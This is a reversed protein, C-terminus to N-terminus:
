AAPVPIDLVFVTGTAESSVSYTGGLSRVRAEISMLGQGSPLDQLQFGKGHDEFLLNLSQEFSNLHLSVYSTGSHKIANTLLEQIIRFTYLKVRPHAIEPGFSFYEIRMHLSQNMRDVYNGVGALLGFRQLTPPTLNYIITKLEEQTTQLLDDALTSGDARSHLAMRAAQLHANVGDHLDRAVRSREREVTELEFALLREQSAKEYQLMRREAKLTVNKSYGILAVIAAVVFVVGAISYWRQWWAPLIRISLAGLAPVWSLQDVTYQLELKYTGPGEIFFEVQRTSTQQWSQDPHLRYRLFINRNNFSLFGYTLRVLNSGAALELDGTNVTQDNVLLKKLYFRPRLNLFQRRADPMVTIAKDDIAFLAGAHQVIFDVRSTLEPHGFLAHFSGQGHTLADHHGIFVGRETSVVVTSDTLALAYINAANYPLAVRKTTGSPSVFLLGSGMTAILLTQPAPSEIHTIKYRALEPPERLLALATDYVGLGVRGGIFIASDSSLISRNSTQTRRFDLNGHNDWRNNSGGTSWVRGRSDQSFDVGSVPFTRAPELSEDLIEVNTTTSLWYRNEQSLFGGIYSFRNQRLLSLKMPPDLTFLKGRQDGILLGKRWPLAFKIRSGEPLPTRSLGLSPLYIVGQELTSFWHGGETDLLVCTVSAAEAFPRFGDKFTPSQFREVGDGLYGVWLNDDRDVSLSIIASPATFAKRLSSGAFEFIDNNFSFWWSKKWLRAQIVHNSMLTDTLQFPFSKGDIEITLPNSNRFPYRQALFAKNNRLKCLLGRTTISDSQLEGAANITGIYGGAAFTLTGSTDYDIQRFISNRAIAGLNDNFAYASVSSNQYVALKGSYSRLWLRNLHDPHMGFVVPDTLGQNAGYTVIEEGDYSAIGNDTAIWIFGASDQLLDYVENSPLGKRYDLRLSAPAQAMLCHTVILLLLGSLKM